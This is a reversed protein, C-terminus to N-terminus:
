YQKILFIKSLLETFQIKLRMELALINLYSNNNMYVWQKLLKQEYLYAWKSEEEELTRKM